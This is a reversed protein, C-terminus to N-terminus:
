VQLLSYIKDKIKEAAMGDVDLWEVRKDARFWTMQRKAFRRTNKKMEDKATKLDYKNELFGQIEKIGIIKRATLSLNMGLLTKVEEIAGADFMAEVRANIREYLNKRERNLGFIRVPFKGYLGKASKKQESITKGSLYYVELARTIRRLDNPSIKEAAAADIKKLEQYLSDNGQKAAKEALTKRLNEDKGTGEFIGDLLAKFYLGSGGCVIVPINKGSLEKIKDTAQRYYEFVGYNDRV